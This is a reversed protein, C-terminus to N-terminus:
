EPGMKLKLSLINYYTNEHFVELGIIIIIIIIIIIFPSTYLINEFQEIWEM